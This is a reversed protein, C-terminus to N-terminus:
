IKKCQSPMYLYLAADDRGSCLRGLESRGRFGVEDLAGRMGVFMGDMCYACFPLTMSLLRSGGVAHCEGMKLRRRRVLVVQSDM